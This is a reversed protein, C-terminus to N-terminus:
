YVQREEKSLARFQEAAFKIFEEEEVETNEERLRTKNEELWMDFPSLTRFNVMTFINVM